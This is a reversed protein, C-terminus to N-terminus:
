YLNLLLLVHCSVVAQVAAAQEVSPVEVQAAVPRDCDNDARITEEGHTHEGLRWRNWWRSRRWHWWRSGILIDSQEKDLNV